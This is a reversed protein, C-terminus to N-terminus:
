RVLLDGQDALNTTWMDCQGGWSAVAHDDEWVRVIECASPCERCPLSTTTYAKEGIDFGKFRCGNGSGNVDEHVLLAAGIAGMLEHHPPVIIEENLQERFARVIGGNFAVGGQFVISPQIDKGSGVDSLYNYVLARCLGYIIDDSDYGTQQKHIMDSEAFVTCRGSINVTDKGTLARHSLEDISINLRSAQHDLFSGTGAACVTNMDFDTVLGDRIIIIKSDQGGIEIVTRVEPVLYVAAVAQCSVENKVMDAGVVAGAIQRASGTTAVGMIETDEPLRQRIQRLGQQVAKVPKGETMLYRSAVLENGSNLVAFKTSVSGVDIGLYAEM